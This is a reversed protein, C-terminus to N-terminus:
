TSSTFPSSLPIDRLSHLLIDKCNGIFRHANTTLMFSCVCVKKFNVSHIDFGAFRSASSAPKNSTDKTMDWEKMEPQWSCSKLPFQPEPLCIQLIYVSAGGSSCTPMGVTKRVKWRECGTVTMFIEYTASCKLFHLRFLASKSGNQRRRGPTAKKICQRM